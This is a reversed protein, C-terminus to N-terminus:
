RTVARVESTPLTTAVSPRVLSSPRQVTVENLSCSAGGVFHDDVSLHIRKVYATEKTSLIQASDFEVFRFDAFRARQESTIADSQVENLKGRNHQEEHRSHRTVAPERPQRVTESGVIRRSGSGSIGHRERMAGLNQHHDFACDRQRGGDDDQRAGDINDGTSRGSTTHAFNECFGSSAFFSRAVAVDLLGIPSAIRNPANVSALPLVQKSFDQHIDAGTEGFLAGSRRPFRM